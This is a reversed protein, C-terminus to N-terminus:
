QGGTPGAQRRPLRRPRRGPWLGTAEYVGTRTWRLYRVRQRLGRWAAMAVNTPTSSARAPGVAVRRGWRKWAASEVLSPDCERAFTALRAGTEVADARGRDYAQCADDLAERALARRACRLMPQAQPLSGAVGRFLTEFANLRERREGVTDTNSASFSAEHDRHWAQDAGQIYAVDAYAAIRLWMEMDHTHTLPEQGGVRHVVGARM